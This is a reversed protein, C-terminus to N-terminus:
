GRWQRDIAGSCKGRADSLGGVINDTKRGTKEVDESRETDEAGLEFDPM